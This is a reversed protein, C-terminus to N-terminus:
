NVPAIRPQALLLTAGSLSNGTRVERVRVYKKSSAVRRASLLHTQQDDAVVLGEVSDLVEVGASFDSLDSQELFFGTGVALVGVDCVAVVENFGTWDAETGSVTGAGARAVPEISQVAQYNALRNTM